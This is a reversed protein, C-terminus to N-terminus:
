RENENELWKEDYAMQLLTRACFATIEACHRYQGIGFAIEARKKITKCCTTQFKSKFKDMLTNGIGMVKIKAVKGNLPVGNKLNDRNALFGSIIIMASLAGCICGTEGIGEGLITMSLKFDDSFKFSTVDEFAKIIAESCYYGSEFYEKVLEEIKNLNQSNMMSGTM